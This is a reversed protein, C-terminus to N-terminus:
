GIASAVGIALGIVVFGLGLILLGPHSRESPRGKFMNLIDEHITDTWDKDKSKTRIGVLDSIEIHEVEIEMKIEPIIFTDVELRYSLGRNKLIRQIAQMVVDRGGHFVQIQGLGFFYIPLIGVLILAILWIIDFESYFYHIYGAQGLFYFLIFYSPIALFWAEMALWDKRLTRLGLLIYMLGPIVLGIVLLIMSLDLSM